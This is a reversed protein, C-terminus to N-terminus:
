GSQSCKLQSFGYEVSSKIMKVDCLKNDIKARYVIADLAMILDIDKLFIWSKVEEQDQDVEGFSKEIESLKDIAIHIKKNKISCEEQQALSNDEYIEM